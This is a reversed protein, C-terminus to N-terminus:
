SMQVCAVVDDDGDDDDFATHEAEALVRNDVNVDCASLVSAWRQRLTSREPVCLDIVNAHFLSFM